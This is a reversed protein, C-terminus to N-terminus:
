REDVEAVEKIQELPESFFYGQYGCIGLEKVKKYVNESHIYEAIVEIGMEKSFTAIAKVLIFANEDSDINKILSGDIKIFDPKLEILHSFNAYGSGFDDIAIKVGLKKMDMIFDRVVSFNEISETELIEFILRNAINTTALQEKIFKIIDRNSIDEYSLNISFSEKRDKFADISKRIMTKTLENYYPTKKIADIFFYPSIIKEDEVIRVLCEYTNSEKKIIPQFFPLINDEALAKKVMEVAKLDDLYKERLGFDDSYVLLSQYTKKAHNLTMDAYELFNDNDIDHVISITVSLNVKISFGDVDADIASSAINEIVSKAKKICFELDHCRINLFAFQDGSIRYVSCEGAATDILIKSVNILIEDGIKEGYISNITSFKDIDILMIGNARFRKTNQLLANRNELGTLGDHYYLHEIEKTKAKVKSELNTKYEYNDKKLEIKEISKCLVDVFQEFEIPKLLYGDIGIRITDIFYGSENYASLILISLDSNVERIKKIMEIGNMRPMNIDSIVLDYENEQFKEWGDVGDVAVSVHEFFNELMGLTS